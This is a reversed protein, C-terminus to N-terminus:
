KRKTMIEKIYQMEKLPTTMDKRSLFFYIPGLWDIMLYTFLHLIQNWRWLIRNPYHYHNKDKPHSFEPVSLELLKGLTVGSTLPMALISIWTQRVKFSWAREVAQHQWSTRGYLAGRDRSGQPRLTEFGELIWSYLWLVLVAGMKEWKVWLLFLPRLHLRWRWTTRGLGLRTLGLVAHSTSTIKM